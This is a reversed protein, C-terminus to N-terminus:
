ELLGPSPGPAPYRITLVDLVPRAWWAPTCPWAGRQVVAAVMAMSAARDAVDRAPGVKNARLGQQGGSAAAAHRYYIWELSTPCRTM